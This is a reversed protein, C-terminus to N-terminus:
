RFEALLDIVSMRLGRIRDSINLLLSDTMVKRNTMTVSNLWTQYFSPEQYYAKWGAVNPANFPSMQLLDAYQYMGVWISYDTLLDKSRFVRLQRFFGVVFDIPNKIMCGTVCEEYFHASSLLTKLVPRIEYNNSILIEALPQIIDDEIQ